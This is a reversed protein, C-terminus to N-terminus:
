TDRLYSGGLQTPSLPSINCRPPPPRCQVRHRHSRWARICIVDSMASVASVGTESSMLFLLFVFHCWDYRVSCEKIIEASVVCALGLLYFINPIHKSKWHLITIRSSRIQMIKSSATYVANSDWYEYNNQNVKVFGRRAPKNLATSIHKCLLPNRITTKPRPRSKVGDIQKDTPPNVLSTQVKFLM